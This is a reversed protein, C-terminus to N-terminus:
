DDVLFTPYHIDFRHWYYYKSIYFVILAALFLYPYIFMVFLNLIAIPYKIARLVDKQKARILAYLIFPYSVAISTSLLADELLFSIMLSIFLLLSSIVVVKRNELSIVTSHNKDKFDSIQYLLYISVYSLLYPLVLLIFNYNLIFHLTNNSSSNIVGSIILLLCTFVSLILSKFPFNFLKNKYCYESFFYILLGIILFNLNSLLLFAFSILLLINKIKNNLTLPITNDKNLNFCGFMLSIGLFLLFTNINFKIISMNTEQMFISPHFTSLYMGVCVMAWVVFLNVPKFIFLFDVKPVIKKHIKNEKFFNKIM